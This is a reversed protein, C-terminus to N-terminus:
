EVDRDAEHMGFPQAVQWAHAEGMLSCDQCIPFWFWTGAENAGFAIMKTPNRCREAGPVYACEQPEDELWEIPDEPRESM